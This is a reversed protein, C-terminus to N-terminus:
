HRLILLTGYSILGSFLRCILHFLKFGSHLSKEKNRSHTHYFLSILTEPQCRLPTLFSLPCCQCLYLIVSVYQFILSLPSTYSSSFVCSLTLFSIPPVSAYVLRVPPHIPPLFMTHTKVPMTMSHEWTVEKHVASQFTFYFVSLFTLCLQQRIIIVSLHHMTSVNYASSLLPLSCVLWDEHFDLATATAM